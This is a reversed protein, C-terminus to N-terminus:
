AAVKRSAPKDGRALWAQMPIAGGSERELAGAVEITPRVSGKRLKTVLSRDKGIAAAMVADTIRERRMYTDLPNSM